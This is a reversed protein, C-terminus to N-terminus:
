LLCSVCFCNSNSIAIFHFVWICYWLHDMIYQGYSSYSSAWRTTSFHREIEVSQWAPRFTWDSSSSDQLCYGIPLSLSVKRSRWAVKTRVFGTAQDTCISLNQQMWSDFGQTSILQFNVAPDKYLSSYETQRWTMKWCYSNLVFYAQSLMIM